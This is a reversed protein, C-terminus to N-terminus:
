ISWLQVFIDFYGFLVKFHGKCSQFNDSDFAGNKKDQCKTTKHMDKKNLLQKILGLCLLNAIFEKVFIRELRSLKPKQFPGFFLTM